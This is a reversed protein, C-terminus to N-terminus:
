VAEGKDSVAYITDGETGKFEFYYIEGEPGYIGNEGVLSANTWQLECDPGVTYENTTVNAILECQIGSESTWLLGSGSILATASTGNETM